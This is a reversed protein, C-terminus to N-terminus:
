ALGYGMSLVNDTSPRGADDLVSSGILQDTEVVYQPVSIDVQTQDQPGCVVCSGLGSPKAPPPTPESIGSYLPPQFPEDPEYMAKDKEQMAVPMSPPAEGSTAHEYVKGAGGGATYVVQPVARISELYRRDALCLNSCEMQESDTFVTKVLTRDAHTSFMRYIAEFWFGQGTCFAFFFLVNPLVVNSGGCIAYIMPHKAFKTRERSYVSSVESVIEDNLEQYNVSVADPGTQQSYSVPPAIPAPPRFKDALFKFDLKAGPVAKTVIVDTHVDRFKHEAYLQLRRADVDRAMLSSLQVDVTVHVSGMDCAGAVDEWSVGGGRSRTEGKLALVLSRDIWHSILFPYSMRFTVVKETHTEREVRTRGESDTVTRTTTHTEYHYCEVTHHITPEAM